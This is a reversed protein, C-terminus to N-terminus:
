MVYNKTLRTVTYTYYTAQMKSRLWNSFDKEVTNVTAIKYVGYSTDIILYSAWQRNYFITNTFIMANRWIVLSELAFIRLVFRPIYHHYEDNLLPSPQQDQKTRVQRPPRLRIQHVMEKRRGAKKVPVTTSLEEHRMRGNKNRAYRLEALRDTIKMLLMLRM